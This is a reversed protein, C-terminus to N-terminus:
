RYSYTSVLSGHFTVILEQPPYQDSNLYRYVWIDGEAGNIQRLPTGFMSAIERKTTYAPRIEEVASANIPHGMRLNACGTVAGALTLLICLRVIKVVPLHLRIPIKM